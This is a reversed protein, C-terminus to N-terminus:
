GQSCDPCCKLYGNARAEACRESTSGCGKCLLVFEGVTMSRGRKGSGPVTTCGSCREGQCVDCQIRATMLADRGAKVTALERILQENLSHEGDVSDSLQAIDNKASALEGTLRGNREGDERRQDAISRLADRAEALGRRATALEREATEARLKWNEGDDRSDSDDASERLAADTEERHAEYYAFCADLQEQTVEPYWRRISEDTAGARRQGVFLSVYLRTKAICAKGGCRGPRKDIVVGNTHTWSYSESM